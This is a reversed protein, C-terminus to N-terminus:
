ILLAQVSTVQQLLNHKQLTDVYSLQTRTSAVSIGNTLGKSFRTNTERCKLNHVIKNWYFVSFNKTSIQWFTTMPHLYKQLYSCSNSYSLSFPFCSKSSAFFLCSFIVLITLFSLHFFLVDVHNIFSFVLPSVLCCPASVLPFPSSISLFLSTCLFSCVLRCCVPFTKFFLVCLSSPRAGVQRGGRQLVRQSRHGWVTWRRHGQM